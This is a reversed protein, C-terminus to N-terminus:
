GGRKREREKEKRVRCIQIVRVPTASQAVRSSPSISVILFLSWFIDGFVVVVFTGDSKCFRLHMIPIM